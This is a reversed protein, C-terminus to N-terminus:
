HICAVSYFTPYFFIGIFLTFCRITRWRVYIGRCFNVAHPWFILSIFWNSLFHSRRIFRHISLLGFLRLFSASCYKLRFGECNIKIGVWCVICRPPKFDLALPPDLPFYCFCVMKQWLLLTFGIPVLLKRLTGADVYGYIKYKIGTRKLLRSNM